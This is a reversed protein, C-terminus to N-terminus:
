ITSFARRKKYADTIAITLIEPLSLEAHEFESIIQQPGM